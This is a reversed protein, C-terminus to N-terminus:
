FNIKSNGHSPEVLADIPSFNVFQAVEKRYTLKVTGTAGHRNKAIIIEALGPHDREDYYERRFILLAIDCDQEISGSERLDSLLPRHGQREEVKRSLQACCLIPIHLERALAKLMRSIESIENQRNENSRMQGSGSILQLYDIILFQIDYKEKMRRARARLDTIKLGSQDDIVITEEMMRNVTAVVRQYEVGDLSGTRIKDSEVESQSCIMRHLLQEATMELTFIGVPLHSKFAVNEGINLAFNTKGMGPRAALIILNSPGLGDIIKDLDIFHSPIGTVVLGDVGKAQFHEQREQLEKLYPLQSSSRTGGLLDKVLVGSGPNVTQSIHFFKAQADDLLAHVDDPEKLASREIEQSTFIMKRLVSKARVLDVYEEIYASTGAYQALTTLYGIGGITTLQNQRKLDEAVLHVDAPKDNCYAQKLSQFIVKHESFYFDQDILQDAAVNLSDINTLMSGLVIMEAEKSHPPAKVKEEM